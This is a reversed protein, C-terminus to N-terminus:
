EDMSSPTRGAATQPGIVLAAVAVSTGFSVHGRRISNRMKICLRDIFNLWLTNCQHSQRLKNHWIYRGAKGTLLVVRFLIHSYELSSYIKPLIFLQPGKICQVGCRKPWRTFHSSFCSNLSLNTIMTNGWTREKNGQLLLCIGTRQPPPPTKFGM